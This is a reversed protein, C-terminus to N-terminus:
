VPSGLWLAGAIILAAMAVFAVFAPLVWARRGQPDAAARVAPTAAETRRALAIREPTPPTGAAEDCTGLQAMGPDYHCVKDGTAGSDIDAKLMASTPRDSPPPSHAPLGAPPPPDESRFVM